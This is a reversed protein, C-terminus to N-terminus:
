LTLVYTITSAIVEIYDQVLTCEQCCDIFTDKGGMAKGCNLYCKNDFTRINTLKIFSICSIATTEM